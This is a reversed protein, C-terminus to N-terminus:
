GIERSAAAAPVIALELENLDWDIQQVHVGKHHRRQRPSHRMMRAALSCSVGQFYKRSSFGIMKLPSVVAVPKPESMSACFTDSEPRPVIQAM